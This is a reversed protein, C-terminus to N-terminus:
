DSTNGIEYENSYTLNTESAPYNTKFYSKKVMNEESDFVFFTIYFDLNQNPPPSGLEIEFLVNRILYRNYVNTYSKQKADDEGKSLTFLKIGHCTLARLWDKKDLVDFYDLIEFRDKHLVLDNAKIELIYIGGKLSGIYQSGYKESFSARCQGPSFRADLTDRWLIQGQLSS